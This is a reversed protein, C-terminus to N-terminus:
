HRRPPILPTCHLGPCRGRILPTRYIEVAARAKNKEITSDVLGVETAWQLPEAPGWTTGLDWWSKSQLTAERWAAELIEARSEDDNGTRKDHRGCERRRRRQGMCPQQRLEQNM